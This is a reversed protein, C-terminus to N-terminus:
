EPVSFTKTLIEGQTFARAIYLGKPLKPLVYRSLGSAKNQAPFKALEAGLASYLKLSSIGSTFGAIDIVAHGRDVTINLALKEAHSMRPAANIGVPSVTFSGIMGASVHVDCQYNYTGAVKIVYIYPNTGSGNHWTAASSPITTSSLPHVSFDGTWKVTDGLDASFSKPSYTMGFSGGFQVTHTIALTNLPIAFAALLLMHLAIGRTKSLNKNMMNLEKKTKTHM